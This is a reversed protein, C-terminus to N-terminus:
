AVARRLQHDFLYLLNKTSLPLNSLSMRPRCDPQDPYYKRSISRTNHDLNLPISEPSHSSLFVCILDQIQIGHCWLSILNVRNPCLIFAKTRLKWLSTPLNALSSISFFILYTLDDDSSCVVSCPIFSNRSCCGNVVYDHLPLTSSVMQPSCPELQFNAAMVYTRREFLGRILQCSRQYLFPFVIYGSSVVSTNIMPCRFLLLKRSSNKSM